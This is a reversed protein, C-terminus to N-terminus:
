RGKGPWGGDIRGHEYYTRCCNCFYLVPSNHYPTSVKRSAKGCRPCRHIRRNFWLFLSIFVLVGALFFRQFGLWALLPIGPFTLLIVMFIVLNFRMERSRPFEVECYECGNLWATRGDASFTAGAYRFGQRSTSLDQHMIENTDNLPWKEAKM